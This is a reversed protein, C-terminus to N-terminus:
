PGAAGARDTPEGGARAAARGGGGASRPRRPRDKERARGEARGGGEAQPGQATARGGPARGDATGTLDLRPAGRGKPTPPGGGPGRGKVGPGRSECKQKGITSAASASATRGEPADRGEPERRERQPGARRHPPRQGTVISNRGIPRVDEM